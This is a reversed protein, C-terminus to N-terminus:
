GWCRRYELMEIENCALNSLAAISRSCLSVHKSEASRSCARVFNLPKTPSLYLFLQHSFFSIRLRLYPQPNNM